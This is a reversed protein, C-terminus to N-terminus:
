MSGARAAPMVEYKQITKVHLTNMEPQNDSRRRTRLVMVANPPM